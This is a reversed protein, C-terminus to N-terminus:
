GIREMSSKHAFRQRVFEEIRDLPSKKAIMDVNRAAVFKPWTSTLVLYKISAEASDFIAPTFSEPVPFDYPLQVDATGPNSNRNSVNVGLHQQPHFPKFDGEHNSDDSPASTMSISETNHGYGPGLDAELDAETHPSSHEWPAASAFPTVSNNHATCYYKGAADGFVDNLEKLHASSLNIPFESCRPSVYLSYIELAMAYQRRRLESYLSGGDLLYQPTSRNSKPYSHWKAKWDKVGHLFSINEGSFDRYSAFQLLPTPNTELAKELADMTYFEKRDTLKLSKSILTKGASKSLSQPEVSLLTASSRFSSGKQTTEWETLIRLTDKQLRQNQLVQWCPIFIASAEM